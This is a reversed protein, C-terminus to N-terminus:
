QGVVHVTASAQAIVNNNDKLDVLQINLTYDGAADALLYVDTTASYEAPLAFGEAPGWGVVNIDYWNGATDKAWLQIHEGAGVPLIRVAEYGAQGLDKTALTVKIPTLGAIATQVDQNIEQQTKGAVAVLTGVTYSEALGTQSLEYTSRTWEITAVYWTEGKKVLFVHTGEMQGTTKFWLTQDANAALEYVSGDPKIQYMKTFSSLDLQTQGDM